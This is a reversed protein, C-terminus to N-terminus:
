SWYSYTGVTTFGLKRYLSIAPANASTVALALRTAGQDAALQAAERLLWEGAQKRRADPTVEIAHIMAVDGCFAVFATAVPWDASRGLISICPVQVRDMAAQRARSINGAEWIERQIALPPWSPIATLYPVEANALTAVAIQMVETQRSAELGAGSLAAGLRGDGDPARFLVPQDWERHVGAAEAIGDSRWDPLAFASSIRGGGGLGRAVRFGGADRYEAAPWTEEFARSLADDGIM